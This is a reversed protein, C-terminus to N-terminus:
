AYEDGEETMNAAMADLAAEETAMEDEASAMKEMPEPLPEGNVTAVDVYVMDGEVRSVKGQGEFTVEDGVAPPTMQDPEEGTMSVSSTKM